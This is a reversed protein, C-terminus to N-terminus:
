NDFPDIEGLEIMVYKLYPNFYKSEDQTDWDDWDIETYVEYVLQEIMNDPLKKWVASEHRVLLDVMQDFMGTASAWGM